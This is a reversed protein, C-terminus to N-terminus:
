LPVRTSRDSAFLAGHHNILEVVPLGAVFGVPFKGIPLEVIKEMQDPTLAQITAIHTQVVQTVRNKASAKDTAPPISSPEVGKVASTFTNVTDTAHNIIEILSKSDFPFYGGAGGLCIQRQLAAPTDVKM